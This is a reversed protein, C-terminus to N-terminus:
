LFSPLVGHSESNTLMLMLMLVTYLYPARRPKNSNTLGLVLM